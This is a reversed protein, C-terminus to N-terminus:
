NGYGGDANTIINPQITGDISGNHWYMIIHDLQCNQGTINLWASIHCPKWLTFTFNCCVTLHLAQCQQWHWKYKQVTETTDPLQQIYYSLMQQYNFNPSVSIDQHKKIGRTCTRAHLQQQTQMTKLDVRKLQGLLIPRLHWDTWTWLLNRRNWHFIPHLYLDILSAQLHATHGSGLDLDGARWTPFEEIQL